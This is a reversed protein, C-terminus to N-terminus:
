RVVMDQWHNEEAMSVLRRGRESYCNLVDQEMMIRMNEQMGQLEPGAFSDECPTGNFYARVSIEDANMIAEFLPMTTETLCIMSGGEAELQKSLDVEYVTDGILIQVREAFDSAQFFSITDVDVEGDATGLMAFCMVLQGDAGELYEFFQWTKEFRDYTYPEKGEYASYDFTATAAMASASVLLIALAVCLFRKM